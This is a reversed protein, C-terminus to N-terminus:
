GAGIVDELKLGVSVRSGRMWKKKVEELLELLIRREQERAVEVSALRCKGGDSAFGPTTEFRVDVPLRGLISHCLDM